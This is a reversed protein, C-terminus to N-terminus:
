FINLKEHNKRKVFFYIVAYLAFGIALIVSVTEPLFMVFVSSSNLGIHMITTYSLNKTKYYVYGFILGIIFAYTGQVINGHAVGFALAPLIIAFYKNKIRKMMLYRFFIEETIPGLIGVTILLPLFPLTEIYGTSQSYDALLNDPLLGLLSSIVVNGLIAVGILFGIKPLNVKKYPNQKTVIFYIIIPILALIGTVFLTEPVIEYIVQLYNTFTETNKPDYANLADLLRKAYDIDTYIKYFLVAVTAMGEILFFVFLWLLVLFVSKIKKM